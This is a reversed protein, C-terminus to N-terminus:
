FTLQVVSGTASSYVVRVKTANLLQKLETKKEASMGALCTKIQAMAGRQKELRKRACSGCGSNGTKFLDRKNFFCPIVEAFRVDGLMSIITSDELVVLDQM